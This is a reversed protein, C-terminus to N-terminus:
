RAVYIRVVERRWMWGGVGCVCSGEGGVFRGEGVVEGEGGKYRGKGVKMGGRGM